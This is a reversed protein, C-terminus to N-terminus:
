AGAPEAALREGAGTRPFALAAALTGLSILALLYFLNAFGGASGHMVAILPVAAPSVGFSVVYGVAFARARWREDAYRAVVADLIPLLGFIMFMLAATAPLVLYERALGAFALLPIQLAAIPIFISRLAHRDILRGVWLQALAAFAYVVCVLAGVGLTSSTIFSLREAFLKPMSITVANFVLSDCVTALVLIALIRMLIRGPVGGGRRQKEARARPLHPVLALFAIGAALSIIGPLIFAARWGFVQALAGTVLAASAIGLNGCLGNVGLRRGIRSADEVLLAIGVPHYISAFFGIVTLGAGVEFPNRAFGTALSALGTGLFFIAMMLRRDWHDGLWGAPLAGAGYTIFGGLALGVLQGYSMHWTPALVLLATPFILMFLHVLVHGLNLFPVLFRAQPM